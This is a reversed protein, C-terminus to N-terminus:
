PKGDNDIPRIAADALTERPLMFVLVGQAAVGLILFTWGIVQRNSWLAVIAILFPLVLLLMWLRNLRLEKLRPPTTWLWAIGALSGMIIALACDISNPHHRLRELRYICYAFWYAMLAPFVINPRSDRAPKQLRIM